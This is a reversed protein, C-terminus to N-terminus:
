FKGTQKKGSSKLLKSGGFALGAAVLFGIGGDIPICPPPWCTPGGGGPPPPPGIPAPTATVTFDSAPVFVSIAIVLIILWIHKKMVLYPFRKQFSSAFTSFFVGFVFVQEFLPL